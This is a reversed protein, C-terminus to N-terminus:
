YNMLLSSIIHWLRHYVFICTFSATGTLFHTRLDELNAVISLCMNHSGVFAIGAIALFCGVCARYLTYSDFLQPKLSLSPYGAKGKERV